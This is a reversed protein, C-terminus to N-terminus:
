GKAMRPQSYHGAICLADQRYTQTGRHVHEAITSMQQRTQRGAGIRGRVVMSDNAALVGRQKRIDTRRLGVTDGFASM